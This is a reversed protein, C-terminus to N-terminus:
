GNARSGDGTGAAGQPIVPTPMAPTAAPAPATTSPMAAMNTPAPVVMGACSINQAAQAADLALKANLLAGVKNLDDQTVKLSFHEGYLMMLQSKVQDTLAGQTLLTQAQQIQDATFGLEKARAVVVSLDNTFTVNAAATANVANQCDQPTAAFAVGSTGVAVVGAVTVAGLAAVLRKM